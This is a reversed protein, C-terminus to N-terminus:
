GPIRRHWRPQYTHVRHSPFPVTHPPLKQPTILESFCNLLDDTFHSLCMRPLLEGCSTDEKEINLARRFNWVESPLNMLASGIFSQLYLIRGPQTGM